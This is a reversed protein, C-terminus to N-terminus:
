VFGRDQCLCGQADQWFHPWLEPGPTGLAFIIWGPFVLSWRLDSWLIVNWVSFRHTFEAHQLSILQILKLDLAGCTDTEKPTTKTAITPFHQKNSFLRLLLTGSSNGWFARLLIRNRSTEENYSDVPSIIEEPPKAGKRGRTSRYKIKRETLFILEITIYAKKFFCSM